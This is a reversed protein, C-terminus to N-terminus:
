DNNNSPVLIYEGAQVNYDSSVIGQNEKYVVERFADIDKNLFEPNRYAMLLGNLANECVEQDFFRGYGSDTKLIHEVENKRVGLLPSIIDVVQLMTDHSVVYQNKVLEKENQSRM